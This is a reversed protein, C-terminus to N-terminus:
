GELKARLEDLKSHAKIEQIGLKSRSQPSFGLQVLNAAIDRELARLGAREHWAEINDLVYLRLKDREDIQECVLQLLELDSEKLWTRGSQFVETWLALGSSELRRRPEPMEQILNVELSPGLHPNKAGLKQKLEPSKPNNPM